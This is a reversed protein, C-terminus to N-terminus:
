SQVTPIQSGETITLTVPFGEDGSFSTNFSENHKPASFFAYSVPFRTLVNDSIRLVQTCKSDVDPAHAICPIEAFKGAKGKLVLAFEMM